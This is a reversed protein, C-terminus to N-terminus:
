TMKPNPYNDSEDEMRTDLCTFDKEVLLHLTKGDKLSQVNEFGIHDNRDWDKVQADPISVLIANEKFEASLASIQSDMKVGYEFTVDDFDTHSACYGKECLEAVEPKTLRFRITNDKIRIKM